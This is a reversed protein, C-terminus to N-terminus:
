VKLYKGVAILSAVTNIISAIIFEWGFIVIFNHNFYQILNLENANFFTSLYPQLLQLFPYLIIIIALVGIFAYLIGEVLFPARVFWNSAGVLKMIKIEKQHTYIAIRVANFVVLITIAVFIFSIMFGVKRTKDTLNNMTALITKHDDFNKSEILEYKSFTDLKDIINNYGSLTKAKVILSADLPNGGVERLAEQISQDDKHKMQFNELAQAKSVYDVSAVDTDNELENKLSAIDTESADPQLYLSLDIKNEVSTIATGSIVGVVIMFNVSFLSLILITVTVLSLWFNRFFDQIAFKLIRITSLLVM